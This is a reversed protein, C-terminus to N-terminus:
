CLQLHSPCSCSCVQHLFWSNPFHSAQWFNLSSPPPFNSPPAQARLVGWTCTSCFWSRQQMLVECTARRLCVGQIKWNKFVQCWSIWFIPLLNSQFCIQNWASPSECCLHDGCQQTFFPQNNACSPARPSAKLTWMILVYRFYILTHRYHLIGQPGFSM